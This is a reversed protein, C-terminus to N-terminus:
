GRTAFFSSVVNQQIFSRYIQYLFLFFTSDDHLLAEGHADLLDSEKMM